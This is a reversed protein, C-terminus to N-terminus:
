LSNTPYNYNHQLAFLINLNWISYMGLALPVKVRNKCVDHKKKIYITIFLM